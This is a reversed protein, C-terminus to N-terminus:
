CPMPTAKLQLTSSNIIPKADVASQATSETLRHKPDINEVGQAVKGSTAAPADVPPKPPVADVSKLSHWLM